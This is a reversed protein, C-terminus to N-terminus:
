VDPESEHRLPEAVAANTQAAFGAVHTVLVLRGGVVAHVFPTDTEADGNREAAADDLALDDALADDPFRDVHRGLDDVAVAVADRILDILARAREGPERRVAA